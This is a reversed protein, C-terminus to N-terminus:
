DSFLPMPLPRHAFAAIVEADIRPSAQHLSAEFHAQLVSLMKRM